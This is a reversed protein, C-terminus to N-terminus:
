GQYFKKWNKELDELSKFQYFVKTLSQELSYGSGIYKLFQSFKYRGHKKIIFNVISFSELYFNQVHEDSAGRLDGPTISNLELFKIYSGDEIKPKLTYLRKDYRGAAKKNEIYTAMGEDLWLPVSAGKIYEHFIIHTLEHVLTTDFNSSQPYAYIIKRQYDVCAIAWPSCNFRKEYDKKDKAIFIKARDDWVWPKDRMFNFEQTIIRYYQEATSKIKDVYSKSVDKHHNIIFHNSRLQLLDADQGSVSLGLCIFISFILISAFIKM